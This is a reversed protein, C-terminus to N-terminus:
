SPDNWSANLDSVFTIKWDLSAPRYIVLASEEAIYKDVERLRAAGAERTPFIRRQPSVSEVYQKFHEQYM